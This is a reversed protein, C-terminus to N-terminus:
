AVFEKLVAATYVEGWVEAPHLGVTHCADEGASLPIGERQYRLVTGRAIGVLEAFVTIPAPRDYTNTKDVGRWDAVTRCPLILVADATTKALLPEFPLRPEAVPPM